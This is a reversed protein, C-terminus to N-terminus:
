VIYLHTPVLLFAFFYIFFYFSLWAFTHSYIGSVFIPASNDFHYILISVSTNRQFKYYIVSTILFKLIKVHFM